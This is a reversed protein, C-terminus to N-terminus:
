EGFVIQVLGILLAFTAIILPESYYITLFLPIGILIFILLITTVIKEIM